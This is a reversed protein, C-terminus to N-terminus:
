HTKSEKLVRRGGRTTKQMTGVFPVGYGLLERARTRCHTKMQDQVDLPESKDVSLPDQCSLCRNLEALENVFFRAQRNRKPQVFEAKATTDWNKRGVQIETVRVVERSNTRYYYNLHLGSM